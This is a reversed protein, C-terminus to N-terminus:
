TVRARHFRTGIRAMGRGVAAVMTLWAAVIWAIAARLVAGYTDWWMWPWEQPHLFRFALNVLRRTRRGHPFLADLAGFAVKNVARSAYRPGGPQTLAYMEGQLRVRTSTRIAKLYPSERLATLARLYRLVAAEARVERSLIDVIRDVVFDAGEGPVPDAGPPATSPPPFDRLVRALESPPLYYPIFAATFALIAERGPPPMSDLRTRPIALVIQEAIFSFLSQFARNGTEVDGLFLQRAGSTLINLHKLRQDVGGADSHVLLWQHLLLAFIPATFPQGWLQRCVGLVAESAAPSRCFYPAM